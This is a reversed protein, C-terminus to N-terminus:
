ERRLRRLTAAQQECKKHVTNRGLAAFLNGESQKMIEGLYRTRCEWGSGGLAKLAKNWEIRSLADVIKNNCIETKLLRVLVGLKKCFRRWKRLAVCMGTSSAVGHNACACATSNDCKMAFQRKGPIGHEKEMLIVAVAAAVLEVANISLKKRKLLWATTDHWLGGAAVRLGSLTGAGVKLPLAAPTPPCGRCDPFRTNRGSLSPHGNEAWNTRGCSRCTTWCRRRSWPNRSIATCM